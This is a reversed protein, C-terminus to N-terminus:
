EKKNVEKDFYVVFIITLIAMGAAFSFNEKFSQRKIEEQKLKMEKKLIPWDEDPIDLDYRDAVKWEESFTRTIQYQGLFASFMLSIFCVIGFFLVISGSRWKKISVPTLGTKIENLREKFQQKYGYKEM